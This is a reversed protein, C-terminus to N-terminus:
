IKRITQRYQLAPMHGEKVIEFTVIVARLKYLFMPKFGCM